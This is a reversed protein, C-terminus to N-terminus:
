FNVEKEERRLEEVANKIQAFFNDVDKTQLDANLCAMRIFTTGKAQSYGVMIKGERHLYACIDEPKFGEITFCVNVSEPSRFLTFLPEKEVCSAAYKALSFVHDIRNAIGSIGYYKWAAWVKFADVKRGCQISINGLDLDAEEDQFLYDAKESLHKGLLGKKQVLLFSASIPVNMMKHANWTFSDSLAAGKLLEKHQESMLASGGLAGDVHLWLGYKKAISSIKDLQDFAGLVTTGATANIYFPLNGAALDKQIESELDDVDMRGRFDSKIKRVNNKGIGLIGANKRISYHGEVSTYVILGRRGIGEKLITEDKENRAILLSVMNSLSGGPNMIGEGNSYGVKKLLEGTMEKEILVQIGSVKYTHMTANLVSSLLEASLSPASRGAFLQNFFATSSTRPTLLSIDKLLGFFEDETCGDDKLSLDILKKYDEVSHYKLVPEKKEEELLIKSINAFEDIAKEIKMTM